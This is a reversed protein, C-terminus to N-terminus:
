AGRTGLDLGARILSAVLLSQFFAALGSALVLAHIAAVPIEVSLALEFLRVRAVAVLQARPGVVLGSVASAEPKAVALAEARASPKAGGGSVNSDPAPGHM